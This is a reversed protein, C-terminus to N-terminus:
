RSIVVEHWGYSHRTKWTVLMVLMVMMIMTCGSGLVACLCDLDEPVSDPVSDPVSEASIFSSM